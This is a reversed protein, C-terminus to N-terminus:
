TEGDQTIGMVSGSSEGGDKQGQGTFFERLEPNDLLGLIKAPLTFVGVKYNEPEEGDMRALIEIIASKHKKVATKVAKMKENNQLHERVEEDTIIEGAPELLDAFRELAEENQLRIDETSM